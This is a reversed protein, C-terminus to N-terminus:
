LENKERQAAAALQARQARRQSRLTDQVAEDTGSDVLNFFDPAVGQLLEAYYRDDRVAQRWAVIDRASGDPYFMLEYNVHQMYDTFAELDDGNALAVLTADEQWANSDVDGRRLADRLAEPNAPTGDPHIAMAEDMTFGGRATCLSSALLLVVIRCM